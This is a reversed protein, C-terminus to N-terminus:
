EGKVQDAHVNEQGAGCSSLSVSARPTSGVM